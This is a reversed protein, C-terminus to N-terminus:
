DLRYKTEGLGYLRRWITRNFAVVFCSMM